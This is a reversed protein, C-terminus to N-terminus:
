TLYPKCSPSIIGGNPRTAPQLASEVAQLTAYPGRRLVAAVEPPQGRRAKLSPFALPVKGAEGDMCCATDLRSGVIHDQNPSGCM